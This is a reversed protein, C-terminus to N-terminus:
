HDASCVARFGANRPLRDVDFGADQMSWDSRLKMTENEAPPHIM